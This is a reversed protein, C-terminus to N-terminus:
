SGGSNGEGQPPTSPLAHSGDERFELTSAPSRGLSLPTFSAIFMALM